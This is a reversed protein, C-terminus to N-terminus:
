YYIKKNKYSYGSAIFHGTRKHRFERPKEKEDNEHLIKELHNTLKSFESKTNKLPEPATNTGKKDQGPLRNACWSSKQQWTSKQAM